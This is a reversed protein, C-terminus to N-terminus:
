FLSSFCNRKIYVRFQQVCSFRYESLFIHDFRKDKLIHSSWMVVILIQIIGTSFLYLHIKKKLCVKMFFWLFTFFRYKKFTSFILIPFKSSILWRDGLQNWIHFSTETVLNSSIDGFQVFSQAITTVRESISKLLYGNIFNISIGGYSIM